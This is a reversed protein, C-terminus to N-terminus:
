RPCARVRNRGPPKPFKLMVIWFLSRIPSTRRILNIRRCQVANKRVGKVINTPHLPRCSRGHRCRREVCGLSLSTWRDLRTRNRVLNESGIAWLSVEFPHLAPKPSLSSRALRQVPCQRCHFLQACKRRQVSHTPMPFLHGAQAAPTPTARLHWRSRPQPPVWQTVASM